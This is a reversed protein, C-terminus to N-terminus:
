THRSIQGPVQLLGGTEAESISFNCTYCVMVQKQNSKPTFSIRKRWVGAM